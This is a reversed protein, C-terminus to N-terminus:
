LSLSNSMKRHEERLFDSLTKTVERRLSKRKSQLEKNQKCSGDDCGADNLIFESIFNFYM